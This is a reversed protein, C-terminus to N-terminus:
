NGIELGTKLVAVQLTKGDEAILYLDDTGPLEFSIAHGPILRYGYDSNTVGEGGVFVNSSLDINQITIDLGSHLGNPTIKTASSDTITFIEHSTM